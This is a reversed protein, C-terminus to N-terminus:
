NIFYIFFNIILKEPHSDQDRVSFYSYPSFANAFVTSLRFYKSAAIFQM